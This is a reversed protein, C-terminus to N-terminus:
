SNENSKIIANNDYSAMDSGLYIDNLGEIKDNSFNKCAAWVAGIGLSGDGSIPGTWLSNISTNNILAQMAKINQAVGGSIVM